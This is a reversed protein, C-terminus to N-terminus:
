YLGQDERPAGQHVPLLKAHKDIEELKAPHTLNHVERAANADKMIHALSQTDRRVAKMKACWLVAVATGTLSESFM